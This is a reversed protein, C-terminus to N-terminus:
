TIFIRFWSIILPLKSMTAFYIKCTLGIQKAILLKTKNGIKSNIQIKEEGYLM